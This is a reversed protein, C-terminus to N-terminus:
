FNNTHTRTGARHIERLLILKNNLYQRDSGWLSFSKRHHCGPRSGGCRNNRKKALKACATFVFPSPTELQGSFKIILKQGSSTVLKRGGAMVNGEDKIVPDSLEWEDSEGRKLSLRYQLYNFAAGRPRKPDYQQPPALEPNCCQNSALRACFPATSWWSLAFNKANCVSLCPPLLFSYNCQFRRTVGQNIHLATAAYSVETPSLNSRNCSFGDGARCRQEGRRWEQM